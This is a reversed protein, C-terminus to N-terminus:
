SNYPPPPPLQLALPAPRAGAPGSPGAALSRWGSRTPGACCIYVCSQDATAPLKKRGAFESDHSYNNKNNYAKTTITITPGNNNYIM